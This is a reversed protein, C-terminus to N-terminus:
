EALAVLEEPTVVTVRSQSFDKKNRTVIYDAKASCACEEQFTAGKALFDM